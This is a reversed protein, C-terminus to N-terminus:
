EMKIPLIFVLQIKRKSRLRLSAIIM